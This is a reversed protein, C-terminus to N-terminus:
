FGGLPVTAVPCHPPVYVDCMAPLAQLAFARMGEIQGQMQPQFIGQTVQQLQPQFIGQTVQQMQPQFIGQTVQQMQPQFFQQQMQPQFFQQQMQPQFFQQQQMIIAQVVSHIALCRLQEPIQELQRCCQQRMVQCSSQQLIQSRLFPVVAVPSCQQVLFQRCPNLQQQLVQLLPQQQLLMQQQQQLLMQQQQLIPQQQEPYPQYQESPDFQATAMTAAMALLAFILFTKM